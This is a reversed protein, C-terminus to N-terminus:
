QSKGVFVPPNNDDGHRIEPEVQLDQRQPGHPGYVPSEMTFMTLSGFRSERFSLRDSYAILSAEINKEHGVITALPPDNEFLASLTHSSVGRVKSLTAPDILNGLRFIFPGTAFEPYIQMGSEVAYLPSLTAIKGNKHDAGLEVRIKESVAHVQVPTWSEIRTFRGFREAFAVSASGIIVVLGLCALGKELYAWRNIPFRKLMVCGLIIAFPFGASFYYVFSPLPIVAVFLGTILLMASLAGMPDRMLGKVGKKLSDPFANLAILALIGAFALNAPYKLFISVVSDLRQVINFGPDFGRWHSNLIHYDFNNFIFQDPYNILYHGVPFLGVLFGMLLPGAQEVVKKWAFEYRPFIVSCVLFPFIFPAYYLKAGVALALTLGLCFMQPLRLEPRKMVHQFILMGLLTAAMPMMYNAAEAGIDQIFYSFGFVLASLHSIAYDNTIRFVLIWLLWCCAVTFFLTVLRSVLLLHEAQVVRFVADYLIPLYPMQLFAFDRYIEMNRALHAATVYMHENHDLPLTMTNVIFYLFLFVACVIGTAMPKRQMKNIVNDM